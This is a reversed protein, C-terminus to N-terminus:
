HQQESYKKIKGQVTLLYKGKKFENINYITAM